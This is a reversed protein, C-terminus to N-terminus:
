DKRVSEIAIQESGEPAEFQFLVEPLFTDFKWDSLNVAVRPAGQIQKYTILVKRPVPRLGADIWIQWDVAAQRFALHHCTVGGAKNLGVYSGVEVGEILGLYPDSYALDALPLSVGYEDILHDLTGDLTNPVEVLAYLGSDPDLMAATQLDSWFERNQVDGHVTSRIGLERHVAVDSSHSVEVWQGSPHPEDKVTEGHVQFSTAAALHKSMSWLIRDARPDIHVAGDTNAETADEQPAAASTLPALILLALARARPRNSAKM